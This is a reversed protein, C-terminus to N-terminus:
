QDSGANTTISNCAALSLHQGAPCMEPLRMSPRCHGCGGRIHENALGFATVARPTAEEAMHGLLIQVGWAAKAEEVDGESLLRDGEVRAVEAAEYLVAARSPEAELEAVRARLKVVEEAAGALVEDRYADLEAVAREQPVLAGTLRALMWTRASM